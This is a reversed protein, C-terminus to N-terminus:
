KFEGAREKYKNLQRKMKIYDTELVGKKHKTDNQKSIKRLVEQHKEYTRSSHWVVLPKYKSSRNLEAFFTSRM